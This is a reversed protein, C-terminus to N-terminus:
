PLANGFLWRVEGDHFRVRYEHRWPMLTHASKQISDVVGERDEPHIVEFVKSADEEVEQPTVRYINYIAASAFLFHQLEM